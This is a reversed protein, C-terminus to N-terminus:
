ERILISGMISDGTDIWTNSWGETVAQKLPPHPGEQDGSSIVVM